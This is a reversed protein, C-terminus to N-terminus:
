DRLQPADFRNYAVLIRELGDLVLLWPRANLEAILLDAIEPTKKKRFADVPRATMYALANRCFEAMVGGKEYFSFWFRGAWDARAEPAHATM